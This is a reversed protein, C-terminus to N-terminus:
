VGRRPRGRWQHRAGGAPHLKPQVRQGHSRCVRGVRSRVSGGTRLGPRSGEVESGNKNRKTHTTGFPASGGEPSEGGRPRLGLRFTPRLGETEVRALGTPWLRTRGGWTPDSPGTFLLHRPGP